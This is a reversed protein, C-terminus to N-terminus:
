KGNLNIREAEHAKKSGPSQGFQRTYARYFTSYDRYGYASYVKSPKEGEQILQHCALLRKVNIYKGISTGTAKQFRRCLQARSIFFKDCLIQLSLEKHLNKNIYQIIAQEVTNDDVSKLPHDAYIMAIQQLLLILNGLIVTRSGGSSALMGQLCSDYRARDFDKQRYLNLMGAKRGFLPRTLEGEPDIASFLTTDFNIVVREYPQEPDMEIFHAESPRMLLIDGPSLPYTSGEIHFIGRGSLFFYVEAYTHTHMTFQAPQPHTDLFHTITIGPGSYQFLTM